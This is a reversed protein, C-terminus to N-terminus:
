NKSVKLMFKFKMQRYFDVQQSLNRFVVWNQNSNAMLDDNSEKPVNNSWPKTLGFNNSCDSGSILFCHLITTHSLFHLLPFCGELNENQSRISVASTARTLSNIDMQALSGPTLSPDDNPNKMGVGKWLKGPEFEPIGFGDLASSFPNGGM